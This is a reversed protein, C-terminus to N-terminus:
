MHRVGSEADNGGNTNEKEELAKSTFNHSTQLAIRTVLRRLAVSPFGYSLVGLWSYFAVRDTERASAALQSKLLLPQMAMWLLM